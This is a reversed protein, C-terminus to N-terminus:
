ESVELSSCPLVPFSEQKLHVKTSSICPAFFSRGIWTTTSLHSLPVLHTLILNRRHSGPSTALQCNSSRVQKARSTWLDPAKSLADRCGCDKFKSLQRHISRQSILHPSSSSNMLPSLSCGPQSRGSRMSSRRLTSFTM